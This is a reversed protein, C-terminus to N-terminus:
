SRTLHLNNSEPSSLVPNSIGSLRKYQEGILLAADRMLMDAMHSVHRNRWSALSTDQIWQNFAGLAPGCHVQFNMREEEVGDMAAQASQAFYSRFILAMKQKPSLTAASFESSKRMQYAMTEKWAEAFSRRLYREEIQKVTDPDLEDISNHRSYLEFLKNARGPFFTGKRLVQVKAGSEFVDGAPAYATDQIEVKELLDKVADSAGSEVSCQNISGTTIFDAGLIFAAAAADPSGIGGAAGLRVGRAYLFRQQLADRLRRIAPVLVCLAGQDTHGGSDAEVCVDSAVPLDRGADAEAKTLRSAAVLDKLIAEPAPSLFAGAVEPRSVKAVLRQVATAVGAANRHAGRLRFWAVSPTISTFAAAEVCRIGRALFLEVFSIEVRPDRFHHLLNMGYPEGPQLQSCIMQIGQDVRSLSLGGTGFFGLLRSRALAIVMAESAIAKYMSGATYALRVGYDERFDASGLLTPDVGHFPGPVAM